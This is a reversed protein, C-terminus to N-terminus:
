VKLPTSYAIKKGDHVNPNLDRDSTMTQYTHPVNKFPANLSKVNKFPDYPPNVNNLPANFSNANKFLVDPHNVDNSSNM